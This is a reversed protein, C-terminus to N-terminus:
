DVFAEGAGFVHAVVLLTPDTAEVLERRRHRAWDALSSPMCGVNKAVGSSHRAQSARWWSVTGSNHTPKWLRPVPRGPM